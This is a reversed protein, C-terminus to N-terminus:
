AFEPGSVFLLYLRNLNAMYKVFQVGRADDPLM